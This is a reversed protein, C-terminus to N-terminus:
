VLLRDVMIFTGTSLINRTPSSSNAYPMRSRVIRDDLRRCSSWVRYFRPLVRM